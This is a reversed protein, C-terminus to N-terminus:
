PKPEQAADGRPPPAWVSEFLRETLPAGILSTLLAHFAHLVCEVAARAPAPEEGAVALQLAPLDVFEPGDLSAAISPFQLSARHLSRQLLASVGRNGLVPALVIRIDELVRVFEGATAGADSNEPFQHSLARLM